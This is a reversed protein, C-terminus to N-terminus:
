SFIEVFIDKGQAWENIYEIIKKAYNEDDEVIAIKM